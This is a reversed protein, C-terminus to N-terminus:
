RRGSTPVRGSRLRTLRAVLVELILEPPLATQGKVDLDAEALWTIAQALRHSGLRRSQDLAKRAVFSSRVGLVSAAEEPTGVTEGDLRFMNSFHRHLIGVIETPGRGGAWMMRHLAALAASTVGSDVADTLDWPPVSGAEGLFPELEAVGVSSGEGYAAVLIQVLGDLRGLDEGLHEQLRSRAAADVRIPAAGLHQAIWTARDRGSGVSVDVLEGKSGIAKVLAQPVTGGGGVLVLVTDRRESAQEITSVLRDVDSAKIRGAERVVVVRRDVLFPPTTYADLVKGMDLGEDSHSGHEEVVLAHDRDGVLRHVLTRSEQAVLSADEGRVLYVPSFAGEEPGNM